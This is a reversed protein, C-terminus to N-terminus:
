ARCIRAMSFSIRSDSAAAPGSVGAADDVVGGLEWLDEGCGDLRDTFPMSLQRTGTTPAAGGVGGGVSVCHGPTPEVSDLVMALVVMVGKASDSDASAVEVEVEVPGLAGTPVM